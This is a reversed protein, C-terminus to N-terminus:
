LAGECIKFALDNVSCNPRRCTFNVQLIWIHIECCHFINKVLIEDYIPPPFDCLLWLLFANRGESAKGLIFCNTRLINYRLETFILYKGDKQKDLKRWYLTIKTATLARDTTHQMPGEPSLLSIFIRLLFFLCTREHVAGFSISRPGMERGGAFHKQVSMPHSPATCYKM